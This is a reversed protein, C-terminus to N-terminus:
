RKEKLKDYLQEITEWVEMYYDSSFYIRCGLAREKIAQIANSNVIVKEDGMTTVVIFM